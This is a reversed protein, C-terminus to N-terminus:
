VRGAGANGSDARRELRASILDVIEFDTRTGVDRVNWLGTRTIEDYASYLGLWNQSPPDLPVLRETFLAIVLREIKSRASNKAARDPVDVYGIQLKSIYDSVKRELDRELEGVSREVSQGKGWNPFQDRLADKRILAEGVHLRFVSSRHNGFGDSTGLHARLRDRLTAKSGRSVGHTGVRVLRPLRTAFRSPETPDFFFYVGQTPLPNRLAEKLTPLGNAQQFSEFHKYLSSIASERDLIRHSHKLFSLRGSRELEFLPETVLLHKQLLLPALDNRYDDDALIVYREVKSHNKLLATLAGEAWVRREDRSLSTLSVDYPEIVTDAELLGHKASLLSFPLNLRQPLDVALRFRPSTYLQAAPAASIQKHKGCSILFHIRTRDDGRLNNLFAKAATPMSSPDPEM